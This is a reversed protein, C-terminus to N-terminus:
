IFFNNFWSDISYQKQLYDVNHDYEGNLFSYLNDFSDEGIIFINNKNYIPSKKIQKNNTILKVCYFLSEMTRLTFGVQDKINIELISKTKNLDKKVKSYPVFGLDDKGVINFNCIMGKEIAVDEIEKIQKERGKEYGVFYIDSTKDEKHIDTSCYYQINHKLNYKECDNEDFSWYEINKNNTKIPMNDETITNRYWGIIRLKPYKKSLLEPLYRTLRSMHLILVDYKTLDKYWDGLWMFSANTNRRLFMRRIARLPKPMKKFLVSANYGNKLWDDFFIDEINNPEIVLLVKNKEM